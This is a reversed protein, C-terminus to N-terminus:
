YRVEQFFLKVAATSGSSNSFYLNQIRIGEIWFPSDTSAITIAHNSTSNIKVSITFNTRIQVATPHTRAVNTPGFTSLFTSQNADLDYDSEGSSLNFEINEYVPATITDTHM